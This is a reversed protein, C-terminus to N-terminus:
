SIDFDLINESDFKKRLLTESKYLSPASLGSNKQGKQGFVEVVFPLPLLLWLGRFKEDKKPSFLEPDNFTM